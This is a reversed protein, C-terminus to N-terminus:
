NILRLWNTLFCTLVQWAVLAAEVLLARFRLSHLGHQKWGEGVWGGM